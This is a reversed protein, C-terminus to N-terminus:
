GHKGERAPLTGLVVVAVVKSVHRVHEASATAHPVYVRFDQEAHHAAAAAPIPTAPKTTAHATMSKASAEGPLATAM